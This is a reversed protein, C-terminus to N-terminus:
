TIGMVENPHETFSNVKISAPELPPFYKRLGGFVNLPMLSFPAGSDVKFCFPKGQITVEVRAPPLVKEMGTINFLTYSRSHVENESEDVQLKHVQTSPNNKKSCCM